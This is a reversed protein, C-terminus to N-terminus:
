LDDSDRRTGNIVQQLVHPSIEGDHSDSGVHQPQTHSKQPERPEAQRPTQHPTHKPNHHPPAPPKSAPRNGQKDRLIDAPSRVPVGGAKAVGEAKAREIADRLTNRQVKESEARPAPSPTSSHPPFDRLPASAPTPASALPRPAEDRPRTGYTSGSREKKERPPAVFDTQKKAIAAEVDARARGFAMRSSTIVDNRYSIAPVDIPPITEASFPPSGVGDIMLTLYIQGIGLGVLDEPTFTPDFVTELVEADFPGVRFVILTGINGFVADRVEEEMQEIYQNALTLALKYKRSESLIDAFAENMMSQFEDVYFYHRPLKQMRAAPEDARSMAALYIKVTLMSGLLSANTEGMRGKSLNVIFIKKEDMMKRLDFSSTAQGVINRILPNATFQGIKNQIAPTAERTYTDTFGAFEETWFSKVIPDSIKEIVANRFTKNTLMRNVDLLTSGPYELLALLTNQLIYEMRASWADVWIRRLAGMLGSVVLHRKDFGVDEMVNFGIPHDTDFPAFYVVDKIRDQPIFDLLKEATSGHPDIFSIGEGNQIDQIAMNELMTSKGMGTKGIVYVHKGRDIARIGFMERKGRTHTAAFYTIRRDDDKHDAHM